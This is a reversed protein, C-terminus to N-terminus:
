RRRQVRRLENTLEAMLQHDLTITCVLTPVHMPPIGHSQQTLMADMETVLRRVFIEIDLMPRDVVHSALAYLQRAQRPVTAYRARASWDQMDQYVALLRHAADQILRWEGPRGTEGLARSLLAADLSEMIRNVFSQLEALLVSIHSVADDKAKLLLPFIPLGLQRGKLHILGVQLEGAYLVYEWSWPRNHLVYDIEHPATPVYPVVEPDDAPQSPQHYHVGGHISGALVGSMDGNVVNTVHDPPRKEAEYTM